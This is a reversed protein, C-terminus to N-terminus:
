WQRPDFGRSVHVDEVVLERGDRLHEIKAELEDLQMDIRRNAELAQQGFSIAKRHCSNFGLNKMKEIRDERGYTVAAACVPKEKGLAAALESQSSVYIYRINEDECLLPIRMVFGFPSTDAALIVFRVMKQAVLEECKDFGQFVLGHSKIQRIINFLQEEM